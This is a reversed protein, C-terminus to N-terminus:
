CLSAALRRLKFARSFFYAYKGDAVGSGYQNKNFGNLGSTKRGM